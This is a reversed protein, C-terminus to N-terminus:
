GRAPTFPSPQIGGGALPLDFRQLGCLEDFAHIAAGILASTEDKDSLRIVVREMSKHLTLRNVRSQIDPLSAQFMHSGGGAIIVLSPNLLSILTSLGMSLYDCASLVINAALKDKEHYAREVCLADVEEIDSVYDLMCSRVNQRLSDRASRVISHVSAYQELCGSNGCGCIRGNEQVVIHALEGAVGYQGRLIRGNSIIGAGVGVGMNVLVMNQLRGNGPVISEHLAMLRASEEIMVPLSFAERIPTVLDVNNWGNLLPFTVRRTTSDVIASASLSIALPPKPMAAIIRRMEAIIFPLGQSHGGLQESPYKRFERVACDFDVCALRCHMAGLDLGLIYGYEGSPRLYKPNRGVSEPAASEEVIAHEQLLTQIHPSIAAVSVQMREAVHARTIPAYLRISNLIPNKKSIKTM